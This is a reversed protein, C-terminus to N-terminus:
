FFTYDSENIINQNIDIYDLLLMYYKEVLDEIM